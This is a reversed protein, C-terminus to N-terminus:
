PRVRELREGIPQHIRDHVELGEPSTAFFMRAPMAASRNRSCIWFISNLRSPPAELPPPPRLPQWAYGSRWRCWPRAPRSPRNDTLLAGFSNRRGVPAWTMGLWLSRISGWRTGRRAVIVRRGIWTVACMVLGPGGSPAAPAAANLLFPWPAGCPSRRIVCRASWGAWWPRAPRRRSWRSRPVSITLRVAPVLHAVQAVGIGAARELDAIRGRAPVRRGILRHAIEVGALPPQVAERELVPRRALVDGTRKSLESLTDPSSRLRSWMSVSVIRSTRRHPRKRGSAVCM